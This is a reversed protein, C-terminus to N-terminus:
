NAGFEKLNNYTDVISKRISTYKFNPLVSALKDTSFYATMSEKGVREDGDTKVQKDTFENPLEEVVIKAIESVTYSGESCIFRNMSSKPEEALLIHALAVDSVDVFGFGFVGVPEGKKVKKVITALYDNSTNVATQAKNLIPGLIFPPNVTVLDFGPKKEQVFNWAEKEAVTKSYQYPNNTASSAINWDAETFVKGAKVMSPDYIAAVSSTVVLRKVGAKACASLVNRTGNLAPDVLDRQGDFNDGEFFFPSATHFVISCGKVAEDFSGEDNLNAEFLVLTRDSAKPFEKLFQYKDTAKLSRVTGHVTYGRELLQKTLTFCHSLCHLV